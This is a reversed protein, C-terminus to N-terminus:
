EYSRAIALSQSLAERLDDVESLLHNRPRSAVGRVTKSTVPSVPVEYTIDVDCLSDTISATIMPLKRM